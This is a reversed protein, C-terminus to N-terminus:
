AAWRPVLGGRKDIDDWPTEGQTIYMEVQVLLSQVEEESPTDVIDPTDCYGEYFMEWSEENYEDSAAQREEQSCFLLPWPYLRGDVRRVLWDYWQSVPQEAESYPVELGKSCVPYVEAAEGPDVVEYHEHIECEDISQKHCVVLATEYGRETFKVVDDDGYEGVYHFKEVKFDKM